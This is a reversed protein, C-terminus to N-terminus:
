ESSLRFGPNRIKGFECVANINVYHEIYINDCIFSVTCEVRSVGIINIM